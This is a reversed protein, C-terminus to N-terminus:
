NSTRTFYKRIQLTYTRYMNSSGTYFKVRLICWNQRRLVKHAAVQVLHFFANKRLLVQVGAELVICGGWGVKCLQGEGPQVTGHDPRSVARPASLAQDAPREEGGEVRGPAVVRGGVAALRGPHCAGDAGPLVLVLGTELLVQPELMADVLRVQRLSLPPPGGSM